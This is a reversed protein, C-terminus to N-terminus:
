AWFGMNSGWLVAVLAGVAAAEVGPEDVGTTSRVPEPAVPAQTRHEGDPLDSRAHADLSTADKAAPVPRFLEGLLDGHPPDLLDGAV